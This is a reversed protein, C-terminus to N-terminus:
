GNIKSLIKDAEQKIYGPTKLEYAAGFMTMENELAWSYWVWGQASTIGTRVKQESWGFTKM